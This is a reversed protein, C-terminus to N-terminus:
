SRSPNRATPASRMQHRAKRPEVYCGGRLHELSWVRVLDIPVVNTCVAGHTQSRVRWRGSADTRFVTPYAGGARGTFTALAYRTGSYSGYYTSGPLPAGLEAPQLRPHARLYAARLGAKVPPTAVLNVGMWGDGCALVSSALAGAAAASALLLAATKV